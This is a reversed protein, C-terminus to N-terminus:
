PPGSCRVLRHLAEERVMANRQRLCDVLIGHQAISATRILSRYQAEQQLLRNTARRYIAITGQSRADALMRFHNRTHQLILRTSSALSHLLRLVGLGGWGM